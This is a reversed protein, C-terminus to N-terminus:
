VLFGSRFSCRIGLMRVCPVEYDVNSMICNRTTRAMTTRLVTHAEMPAACKPMVRRVGAGAGSKISQRVVSMTDGFEGLGAAGAEGGRWASDIVYAAHSWLQLGAGGGRWRRLASPWTSCWVSITRSTPGLEDVLVVLVVRGVVVVTGGEDVVTPGSPVVAGPEVPDVPGVVTAGCPEVAEVPAGFPGSAKVPM